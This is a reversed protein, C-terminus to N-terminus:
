TDLANILVLPFFAATKSQFCLGSLILATFWKHFDKDNHIGTKAHISVAYMILLLVNVVPKQKYTREFIGRIINHPPM